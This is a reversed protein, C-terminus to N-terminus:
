HRYFMSKILPLITESKKNPICTAFCKTIKENFEVFCLADTKISPSRGRHSKVKFNMMTEDIEVLCGFGGFKILNILNNESIKLIVKNIIKRYVSYSVNLKELIKEQRQNEVM